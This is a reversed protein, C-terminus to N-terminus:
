HGSTGATTGQPQVVGSPGAPVQTQGGQIGAPFCECVTMEMSWLREATVMEGWGCGDGCELRDAAAWRVWVITIGM